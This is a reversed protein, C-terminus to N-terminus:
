LVHCGLLPVIDLCHAMPSKTVDVTIWSWGNRSTAKPFIISKLVKLVLPDWVRIFLRLISYCKVLYEIQLNSANTGVKKANCAIHKGKICEIKCYDVTLAVTTTAM